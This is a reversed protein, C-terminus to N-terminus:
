PFSTTSGEDSQSRKRKERVITVTQLVVGLILAYFAYVAVLNASSANGFALIVGASLLLV